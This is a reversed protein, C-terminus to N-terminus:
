LASRTFNNSFCTRFFINERFFNDLVTLSSPHLRCKTIQSPKMLLLIGLIYPIYRCPHRMARICPFACSTTTTRGSATGLLPIACAKRSIARDRTRPPFSKIVLVGATFASAALLTDYFIRPQGLTAKRRRRLTDTSSFTTIRTSPAAKCPLGASIAWLWTTISAM